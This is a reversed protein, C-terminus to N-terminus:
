IEKGVGVVYHLMEYKKVFVIHKKVFAIYGKVKHTVIKPFV